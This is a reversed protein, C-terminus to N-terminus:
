FAIPIPTNASYQVSPYLPTSPIGGQVKIVLDSLLVLLLLQGAIGEEKVDKYVPTEKTEKEQATALM